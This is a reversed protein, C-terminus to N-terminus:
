PSTGFTPAIGAISFSGGPIIANGLTGVSDGTFPNTTVGSPAGAEVGITGVDASAGGSIAAQYEAFTMVGSVPVPTITGADQVPAMQQPMAQNSPDGVNISSGNSQDTSVIIVERLGVTMSLCFETTKDTTVQLSTVLMNKYARAGTTVNIPQRQQQLSLMLQYAEQKWGYSQATSNSFGIRMNAESPKRFAHDTIAAGTEVPHDTTVVDDVHHEEITCDPVITGIMRQTSTILAYANDILSM